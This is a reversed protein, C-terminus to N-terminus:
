EELSRDGLAARVAHAAVDAEFGRRALLGFLRRAKVRPDLGVSMAAARRRVLDTAAAHLDTGALSRRAADRATEADVRKSRLSAEIRKAGTARSRTMSRAWADAFARDDLKGARRLEDILEAIIVPRLGVRTLRQTIEGTSRPRVALLRRAAERALDHQGARLLKVALAPTFEAGPALRLAAADQVSLACVAAGAFVLSVREFKLPRLRELRAGLPVADLRAALEAVPRRRSRRDGDSDKM